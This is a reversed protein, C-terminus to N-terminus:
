CRKTSIIWLLYISILIYTPVVGLLYILPIHGYGYEVLLYSFPFISYVILTYIWGHTKEILAYKCKPCKYVEYLMDFSELSNAYHKFPIKNLCCPCKKKLM